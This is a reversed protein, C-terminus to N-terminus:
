WASGGPRLAAADGPGLVDFVLPEVVGVGSELERLTLEVRGTLRGDTLASTPVTAYTDSRVWGRFAINLAM